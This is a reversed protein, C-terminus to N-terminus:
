GGEIRELVELPAQQQHQAGLIRHDRRLDLVFVCPTRVPGATDLHQPQLPSAVM